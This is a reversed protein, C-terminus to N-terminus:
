LGPGKADEKILSSLDEFPGSHGVYVLRPSLAALHRLSEQNQELDWAVIPPGPRRLLGMLKGMVMDGVIAEGSDLLVSIAGPTHGPTPIVRGAVGYKDLRFESDFVIDPEFAPAHDPVALTWLAPLRTLLGVLWGTPQLSDPQHIGQRVADADLAHIAVPAGTRERLAAASGFHDVHGHTLLILRVDEPAVGHEALRRLIPEAAGPLGADVLVSGTDGQLLFVNTMGRVTIQLVPKRM